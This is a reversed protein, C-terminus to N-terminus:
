AGSGKEPAPVGAGTGADCRPFQTLALKKGLDHDRMVADFRRALLEVVRRHHVGPPNFSGGFVAIRRTM